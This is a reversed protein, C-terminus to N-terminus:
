PLKSVDRQPYGNIRKPKQSREEVRERMRPILAADLCADIFAQREEFSPQTVLYVADDLTGKVWDAEKM